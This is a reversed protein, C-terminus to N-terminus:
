FFMVSLFVAEFPKVGKCGKVDNNGSQLIVVIVNAQCSDVVVKHIVVALLQVQHM